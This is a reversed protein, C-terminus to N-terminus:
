IFIDPWNEALKYHNRLLSKKFLTWFIRRDKKGLRVIEGGLPWKKGEGMVKRCIANSMDELTSSEIFVKGNDMDGWFSATIPIYKEVLEKVQKETLLIGYSEYFSTIAEYEDITGSITTKKTIKM